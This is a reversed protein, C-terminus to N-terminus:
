MNYRMYIEYRTPCNCIFAYDSSGLYPCNENNHSREEIFLGRGNIPKDILCMNGNNTLCHFKQQCKTTQKLAEDSITLPITLEKAKFSTVFELYQAP